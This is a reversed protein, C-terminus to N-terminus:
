PHTKEQLQKEIIKLLKLPKSGPPNGGFDNKAKANFVYFMM